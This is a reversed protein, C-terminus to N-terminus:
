ESRLAQMPDIKAARRAPLYSAFGIAALLAVVSVTFATFDLPQTQYLLSAIFRSAAWSAVLGLLIGPLILFAAQRLTMAIVNAPSAGLAMRVGIETTRRSVSYNLLGFIGVASLLLALAALANSLTALLRTRSLSEKVADSVPMIEMVHAAARERLIKRLAAVSGDIDSTRLFFEVPHQFGDNEKIPLYFLMPASDEIGGFRTDAVVGIVTFTTRNDNGTLVQGLPSGSPFFYRAASASLICVNSSGQGDQPTFDRGALLRTSATEFFRPSVWDMLYSFDSENRPAARFASHAGSGYGVNGLAHAVDASASQIGRTHNLQDLLDDYLAETARLKKGDKDKDFPVVPIDTAVFVG